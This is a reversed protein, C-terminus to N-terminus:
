FLKINKYFYRIYYIGCNPPIRRGNEPNYGGKDHKKKKKPDNSM